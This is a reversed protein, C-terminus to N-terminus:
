AKELNRVGRDDVLLMRQYSVVEYGRHGRDDIILGDIGQELCHERLKKSCAIREETHGRVTDGGMVEQKTDLWAYADAMTQFRLPRILPVDVTLVIGGIGRARPLYCTSYFGWGFDGPDATRKANLDFGEALIKVANEKSTAHYARM